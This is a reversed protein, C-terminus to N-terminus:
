GPSGHTPAEMQSSGRPRHTPHTLAPSQGASTAPEHPEQPPKELVHSWVPTSLRVIVDYPHESPVHTGDERVSDRLQERVVLPILQPVALQVVQPAHPPNELSHASTPVRDRVHVSGTHRLPRQLPPVRVSVSAQVRLVEPLEHESELAVPVHLPPVQAKTDHESPQHLRFLEDVSPHSCESRPDAEHLEGVFRADILPSM